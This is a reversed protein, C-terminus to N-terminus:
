GMCIARSTKTKKLLSGGNEKGRRNKGSRENREIYIKTKVYWKRTRLRTERHLNRKGTAALTFDGGKKKL